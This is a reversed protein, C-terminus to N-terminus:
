QKETLLQNIFKVSRTELWFEPKFPNKGTLFGVHGGKKSLEFQVSDSMEDNNPIVSQNMFPDDEAHIILTPTTVTSLFQKGSSKQYYDEASSFGNLPATVLQDFENINSIGELERQTLLLPDSGNLAEIKQATSKKLKELLYKQYVKSFGQNITKSCESLNLPASISIAGDLHSELNEGVYKALVNGGLSFGISFLPNSPHNQKLFQIFERVDETQGSHYTQTKRNTKTGCGRFHMLVAVWGQQYITNMMRKTYFSDFSGELGHFLLVIPQNAKIKNIQHSWTVEVFDGDSLEFEQFAPKFHSTIPYTRPLITQLHRNTMWWAPKFESKVLM